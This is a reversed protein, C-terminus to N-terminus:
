SVNVDGGGQSFAKGLVLLAASLTSLDQSSLSGLSGAMNERTEERAAALASIGTQTLSLSVRRRDSGARRAVIKEAVLKQVLKSASPATMGLHEAVDNLSAKPNRRLYGLVRFQPMTLGPM